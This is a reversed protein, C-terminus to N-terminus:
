VDIDDFFQDVHDFRLTSIFHIGLHDGCGILHQLIDVLVDLAAMPTAAPSIASITSAGGAACAPMKPFFFGCGSKLADRGAGGGGGGALPEM